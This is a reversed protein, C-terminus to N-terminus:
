VNFIDKGVMYELFKEINKRFEIEEEKLHTHVVIKKNNETM